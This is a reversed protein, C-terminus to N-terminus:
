FTPPELGEPRADSVAGAVAPATEANVGAAFWELPQGTLRALRVLSSFKPETRGTEWASVTPRAVGCAAAVDDQDVGALLRARRIRDAITWTPNDAILSMGIVRASRSILFVVRRASHEITMM